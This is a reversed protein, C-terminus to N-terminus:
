NTARLRWLYEPRGWLGRVQKDTKELLGQKTLNTMARRVSTLPSCPFVKRHVWSPAIGSPATVRKFYALIKEEQSQAKAEFDFLDKGQSHTTNYYSNNM